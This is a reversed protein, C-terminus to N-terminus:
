CKDDSVEARSHPLLAKAAEIRWRMDVGPDNMVQLLFRHPGLQGDALRWPTGSAAHSPAGTRPHDGVPAAHGPATPETNADPNPHTHAAEQASATDSWPEALVRQFDALPLVKLRALVEAQADAGPPMDLWPEDEFIRALDPAVWASWQGPRCERGPLSPGAPCPADADADTHAHSPAGTEAPWALVRDPRVGQLYRDGLATLCRAAQALPVPQALSFWLQHGDIGSIAIAPAPWGLDAQVGRWVRLLADWDAPRAVGLVLVRVQGDTTTLPPDHAAAKGAPPQPLLYLRHLEADLRTMTLLFHTGPHECPHPVHEM